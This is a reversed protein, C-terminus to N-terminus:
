GCNGVVGGWIQAGNTVSKQFVSQQRIIGVNPVRAFVTVLIMDVEQQKRRFRKFRHIKGRPKMLGNATFFLRAGEHTELRARGNHIPDAIRNM